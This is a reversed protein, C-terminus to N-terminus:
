RRVLSKVEIKPRRSIKHIDLLSNKADSNERLPIDLNNEILM